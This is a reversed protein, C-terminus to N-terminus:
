DADQYANLPGLTQCTSVLMAVVAIILRTRHSLDSTGLGTSQDALCWRDKEMNSVAAPLWDPHGSPQHTDLAHCVACLLRSTRCM